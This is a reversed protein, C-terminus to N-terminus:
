RVEGTSADFERDRLTRRQIKGSATRPLDDVFEVKRPYKYPAARQRVFAQLEAALAADGRHAPRLVVFAKVVEGRTADPSAVVASEAVAPHQALANEVETPGIRYGASGIIDDDRGVFYLEGDADRWGTDGSLHWRGALLPLRIRGTEDRYGLMLGPDAVDFAIAGPAGPACETGDADVIAVRNGAMPRGIMGNAAPRSPDTLTATPTESQGYGVLLPRGSYARWREAMEATMAEGASLTWRLRAFAPAPGGALILRLETTVAGFITVGFRELLAARAAPEPPAEVMLAAAGHTWPGFVLCSGARTWGTDSSTWVLDGEGAGLQAWPQRGRVFVGRSAHLVAKPPGSSGSTFYMLAPDDAHLDAPPPVEGSAAAAAAELDLWGEGGGRAFRITPAGAAFRALFEREAVVARAGSRALRYAVDEAAAQTVCPVPVAGVHLCAALTAQWWPTRHMVLLVRDGPGVGARALAGAIRGAVVSMREYTWTEVGGDAALFVSAPRAPADAARRHLVDRAFNFRAPPSAAPVERLVPEPASARGEPSGPSRPIPTM